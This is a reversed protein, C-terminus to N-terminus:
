VCMVQLVNEEILANSSDIKLQLEEVMRRLRQNERSMSIVSSAADAAASSETNPGAPDAATETAAATVGTSASRTAAATTNADTHSSAASGSSTTAASAASAASTAWSSRKVELTRFSHLEEQKGMWELTLKATVPGSGAATTESQEFEITYSSHKSM